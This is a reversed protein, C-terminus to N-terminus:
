KFWKRSYVRFGIVLKGTRAKNVPCFRIRSGQNVRLTGAAGSATRNRHDSLIDSPTGAGTNRDSALLALHNEESGARAM